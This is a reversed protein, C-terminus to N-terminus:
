VLYCSAVLHVVSTHMVFGVGGVYRSLVKEGSHCTSRREFTSEGPTEDDGAHFDLVLRKWLLGANSSVTTANYVCLM